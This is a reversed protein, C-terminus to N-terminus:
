TFSISRWARWASGNICSRMYIETGTVPFALQFIWINTGPIAKTTDSFHIVIGYNDPRGITNNIYAYIGNDSLNNLDQVTGRPKLIGKLLESAFITNGNGGNDLGILKSINQVETFENMKIDAM